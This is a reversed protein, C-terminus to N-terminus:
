KNMYVVPNPVALDYGNNRIMEVLADNLMNKVAFATNLQVPCNINVNVVPLTDSYYVNTKIEDIIRQDDKFQSLTSNVLESLQELNEIYKLQLTFNVRQFDKTQNTVITIDGNPIIYVENNLLNRLTTTRLGISEVRGRNGEIIVIDDVQFQEEVIIFIGSIVDKVLTQAGFGIAVSGFGAIALISTMEVNFLKLIMTLQIFYVVFSTISNIVSKVTKSQQTNKSDLYNNIFKNSFRIVIRGVIIIAAFQIVFSILWTLIKEDEFLLMVKEFM